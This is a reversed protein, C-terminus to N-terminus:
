QLGLVDISPGLYMGLVMQDDPFTAGDERFKVWDWFVFECFPSIDATKGSIHGDSQTLKRAAGKKLERIERKTSNSWTSYPETGQLYCTAEKCKRAFEGLRMEKAGDVIMKPPVGEWAFLLGLADHAQSKRSMPYSRSWGFDTAFMQAM